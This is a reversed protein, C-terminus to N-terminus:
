AKYKGYEEVREPPIGMRAAIRAIPEPSAGQAIELDPPVPSKKIIM